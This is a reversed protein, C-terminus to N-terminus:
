LLRRVDFVTLLAILGLLGAFGYSHIRMQMAPSPLLKPSIAELGLFVLRGGDLAPIPLLNFFGLAVSLTVAFLLFRLVGGEAEDKASKLIAVPGGLGGSKPSQIAQVLAAGIGLSSEFPLRVSTTLIEGISPDEGEVLAQSVGVGFLGQPKELKIQLRQPKGGDQPRQVSVSYSGAAGAIRGLDAVNRVVEGDIAVIRDGSVIGATAAPGGDRVSVVGVAWRGGWVTMILIILLMATIYNAFPGGFIALARAWLPRNDFARPNDEVGEEEPDLGVIHVFGGFPIPAIRYETEGHTFKWIAPGLGISFTDVKMGARKAFLMHGAEHLAVVVGFLMIGAALGPNKIVVVVALAILGLLKLSEDRSM